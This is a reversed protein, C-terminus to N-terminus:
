SATRLAMFSLPSSRNTKEECESRCEKKGRMQEILAIVNVGDLFKPVNLISVVMIIQVKLLSVRWVKNKPNKNFSISHAALNKLLSGGFPKVLIGFTNQDVIASDYRWFPSDDGARSSHTSLVIGVVTTAVSM